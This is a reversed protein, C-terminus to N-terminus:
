IKIKLLEKRKLYEKESHTNGCIANKLSEKDILNTKQNRLDKFEQLRFYIDDIKLECSKM